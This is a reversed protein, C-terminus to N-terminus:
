ATGLKATELAFPNRPSLFSYSAMYLLFMGLLHSDNMRSRSLM